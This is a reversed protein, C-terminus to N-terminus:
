KNKDFIKLYSANFYNENTKRKREREKKKRKKTYQEFRKLSREIERTRRFEEKRCTQTDSRNDFPLPKKKVFSYMFSFNM